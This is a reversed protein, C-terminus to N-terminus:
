FDLSPFKLNIFNQSIEMGQLIRERTYWKVTLSKYDGLTKRMTM